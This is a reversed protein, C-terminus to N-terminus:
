KKIGVKLHLLKTIIAIIIFVNTTIILIEQSILIVDNIVCLGFSLYIILLLIYYLTVRRQTNFASYKFVSANVVSNIVSYIFVVPMIYLLYTFLIPASASRPLLMPFYKTIVIIFAVYIIMILFSVISWRSFKSKLHRSNYIVKEFIGSMFLLPVSALWALVISNADAVEFKRIAIIHNISIIITFFGNIVLANIGFSYLTIAHNIKGSLESKIISFVFIFSIIKSILFGQFPNFSVLILLVTLLIYISNFLLQVRVYEMIRKRFLFRFATINVLNDMVSVAIALFLNVPTMKFIGGIALVSIVLFTNLLLFKAIFSLKVDVRQVSFEFGFGAIIILVSLQYYESNFIKYAEPLLLYPIVIQMIKSFFSAFGILSYKSLFESM